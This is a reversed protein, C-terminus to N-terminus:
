PSSLNLMVVGKANYLLKLNNFLLGPREYYMDANGFRKHVAIRLLSTKLFVYPQENYVMKQFRKVLPARKADDVTYKISDILADSSANGFGSYNSGNSTWSSTHWLQTFDEPLSSGGWVGLMADFNHSQADNIIVSFDLPTLIVKIGAKYFSEQILLAIDKWDPVANAYKLTFEFQVKEGNIMKDRIKDGDIDKWGASDLLEKAKAVNLPIAVLSSNFDKKLPSVPGIMRKSKGKDVMTIIEDVPTLYACARRVKKDTFFEKHKIGDPKMNLAMYSYNFNPIFASNYNRNFDKNKQLELLTKTTFFNSLDYTQSKFELALSNQDTNIKFIIKDPFANAFMTTDASSKSINKKKVLVLSQGSEWSEVRYPGLGSIKEPDRGNDSSNFEAAWKDLDIHKKKSFNKDDFQTFTYKLLINGADFLKRQIIPFDTLFSINNIYPKKMIIQFKSANGSVRKVDKVNEMFVKYSPNDTFPCKNAKLTFIIDDITLPSGDDWKIGDKLEYSYILEDKSIEPLSKVLDARITLNRIDTAIIFRHILSFIMMRDASVGNAPHLMDPESFSHVILANEKSWDSYFTDADIIKIYSLSDNKNENNGSGKDKNCKCAPIILSASFLAIFFINGFFNNSM